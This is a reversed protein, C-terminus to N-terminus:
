SPACLTVFNQERFIDKRSEISIRSHEDVNKSHEKSLHVSYHGFSLRKAQFGCFHKSVKEKRREKEKSMTDFMGVSTTTSATARLESNIILIGVV